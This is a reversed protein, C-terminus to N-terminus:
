PLLGGLIASARKVAREMLEDGSGEWALIFNELDRRVEAVLRSEHESDLPKEAQLKEGGEMFGEPYYWTKFWRFGRKWLEFGLRSAPAPAGRQIQYLTERDWVYEVYLPEAPGLADAALDLLAAEVPSGATPMYAEVPLSPSVNFIEIWPRYVGRGCFVLSNCLEVLKEGARELRVALFFEGSFRGQSISASLRVSGIEPGMDVNVGSSLIKLLKTIGPSCWSPAAPQPVDQGM